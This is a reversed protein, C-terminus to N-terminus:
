NVTTNCQPYHVTGITYGHMCPKLIYMAQTCTLVSNYHQPLKERFSLLKGLNQLHGDILLNEMFNTYPAIKIPVCDVLNKGGTTYLPLYM